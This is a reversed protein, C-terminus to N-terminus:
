TALSVCDIDNDVSGDQQGIFSMQFAHKGALCDLQETDVKQEKSLEM